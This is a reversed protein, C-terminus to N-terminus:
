LLVVVLNEFIIHKKSQLDVHYKSRPKEIFAEDDLFIKMSSFSVFVVLM